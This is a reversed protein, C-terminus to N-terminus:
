RRFRVPISVVNVSSGDEASREYAVLTGTGAGDADLQFEVTADFTGREGSGSTATFFRDALNRGGQNVQLFFTAEFTNATGTVRLPSTVTEGPVPSEVLIQPTVDEFDARGVSPAVTVGEGGIADVDRGDIRFAVREVTPFQTLTYVVQAVRLQMSLSGGGSEFRRSLDVTAVGDAIAIGRLETGTPISSSLGAQRDADDPGELLERLAAQAVAQTREVRRGAVGVREDRVFYVRLALEEAGEDTETPSPQTETTEGPTEVPAPPTVEDDGGGCATVALAVVALLLLSTRM